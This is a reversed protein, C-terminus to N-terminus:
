AEHKMEPVLTKIGQITERNITQDELLSEGTQNVTQWLSQLRDNVEALEYTKPKEIFISDFTTRDFDNLNYSLEEFLKEGPRLGVFTIPIETYPEYGALTIMKEALDTIREPKGMDLVFIEGGRAISAAQLVLQTAEPITMFFRTINKDTVTVPGGGAIQEKFIPIVSGNSGLVNGFRVAVFETDYNRNYTQAMIECIRKTAGMVNTPNVAKDTSIQVFRKVRSAVCADLVNRTGFVNNKVAERPTREMLPVHKHAAAHFVIDPKVDMFIERINDRERISAIRTTLTVTINHEKKLAAIYKQLELELYYLDNENIDLIYLEKPHFRIIQRCLESGISGAGGTVLITKNEITDAIAQKDLKVEDRDLLDEIQLDRLKIESIDYNLIDEITPLIKVPRGTKQAIKAIEVRDEKDATPMAIIIEAIPNNDVIAPIDNRGGLVKIGNIRKNQKAPDDDVFGVPTMGRSSNDIERLMKIGAEGAGVILTGGGNRNAKNKVNRLTRYMIRIGGVLLIDFVTALILVTNAVPIHCIFFYLVTVLDAVLVSGIIQWLEEISAYRWLTQYMKTIAFVVLKIAIAIGLCLALQQLTTFPIKFNYVLWFAFFYSLFLAISDMLVLLAIRITKQHDRSPPRDTDNKGQQSQGMANKMM